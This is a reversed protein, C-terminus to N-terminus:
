KEYIKVPTLLAKEISWGLKDIRRQLSGDSLNYEEEWASCCQTKNNYTILRNNRKNRNNEKHNIWRCNKKYYGKNNDIRDLQKGKSKKGMDKLFNEFKIWQKCVTIGRGGYNKYTECNPNICRQIMAEWTHYLKSNSMGHKTIRISIMESTSCGCSKTNGTKLSLGLIIKTKNCDCKCLWRANGWKDRGMYKIVILKGFKLGSLDIFKM